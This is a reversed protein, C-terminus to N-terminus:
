NGFIKRKKKLEMLVKSFQTKFILIKKINVGFVKAFFNIGM